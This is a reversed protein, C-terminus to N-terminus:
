SGVSNVKHFSNFSYIYNVHNIISKNHIHTYKVSMVKDTNVTVDLLMVTRHLPWVPALEYLTVAVGLFEGSGDTKAWNLPFETMPETFERDGLVSYVMCTSAMSWDKFTSLLALVTSVVPTHTFM